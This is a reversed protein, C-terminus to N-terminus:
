GAVGHPELLGTLFGIILLIFLAISLGIRWTLARATKRSGRPERVLYVM